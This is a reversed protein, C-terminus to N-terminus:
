SLLLECVQKTGTGPVLDQCLRSMQKLREPTQLCRAVADTILKASVQRSEGLFDIYGAARMATNTVTQNTAISIVIAPLGLCMREWSTSGGASIMLDTQTMREALSPLDSYVLTGPRAAAQRHIGEPDPHNIGLVVDVDLNALAPDTLADIVKQTENTPDSGGMFVLVRKVRGTRPLMQARLSAYEPRLLAYRPGLMTICHDPVVGQYRHAMDVGFWNQDLLFDCEHKRDALDDIVMIRKAYPRLTTEWRIDLAYHDIVCLDPKIAQMAHRTEDADQPWTTGLWSAHALTPLSVDNEQQLHQSQAPLEIVDYGRQRIAAIMNGPHMRCIFSSTVGKGQLEDALSLCRVIHGTGIQLSADARFVARM